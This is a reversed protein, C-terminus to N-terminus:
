GVEPRLFLLSIKDIKYLFISIDTLTPALSLSLLTVGVSRPTGLCLPLSCSGYIYTYTHICVCIHQEIDLVTRGRPCTTLHKTVGVDLSQRVGM